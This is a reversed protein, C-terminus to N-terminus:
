LGRRGSASKRRNGSTLLGRSAEIVVRVARATSIRDASMPPQPLLGASEPAGPPSPTRESPNSWAEIALRPHYSREVGVTVVASFRVPGPDSCTRHVLPDVDGMPAIGISNM